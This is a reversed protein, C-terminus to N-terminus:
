FGSGTNRKRREPTPKLLLAKFRPDFDVLDALNPITFTVGKTAEKLVAIRLNIITEREVTIRTRKVAELFEFLDDCEDGICYLFM